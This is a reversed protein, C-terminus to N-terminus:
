EADSLFIPRTQLGGWAMDAQSFGPAVGEVSRAWAGM